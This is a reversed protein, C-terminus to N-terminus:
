FPKTVMLVLIALVMATTVVGLLRAQGRRRRFEPDGTGGRELAALEGRVVPGFVLYGLAAAALYLAVAAVLWGSALPFGGALALAVGTVALLLYAPNAVRRDIWRIARITFALHETEREAVRLWLGYTLNAGIAVVALLVHALKLLAYASM